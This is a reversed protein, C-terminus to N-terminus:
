VVSKRDGNNYYTTSKGELKGNIYFQIIKLSSDKYYEIFEGHYVNNKYGIERLLNENKYYIEEQGHKMFNIYKTKKYLQGSAYYTYIYEEIIEDVGSIMEGILRGKYDYTKQIEVPIEAKKTDVNKSSCASILIIICISFFLRMLKLPM